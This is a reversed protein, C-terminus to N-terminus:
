AEGEKEVPPIQTLQILDLPIEALFEGLRCKGETRLSLGDQLALLAMPVTM